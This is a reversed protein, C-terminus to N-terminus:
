FLPTVPLRADLLPKDPLGGGYPASQSPGSPNFSPVPTPSYLNGESQNGGSPDLPRDFVFRPTFLGGDDSPASSRPADFFNSPLRVPPDSFGRTGGSDQSPLGSPGGSMPTLAAQLMRLLSPLNMAGNGGGGTLLSQPTPQNPAARSPLNLSLVKVASPGGTIAQAPGGSGLPMSTTGPGSAGPQPAGPQWRVGIQNFM